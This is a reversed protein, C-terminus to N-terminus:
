ELTRVIMQATVSKVTIYGKDPDEVVVLGFGVGARTFTRSCSKANCAVVCRIQEGRAGKEIVVDYEYTTHLKADEEEEQEPPFLTM